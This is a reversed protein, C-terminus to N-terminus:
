ENNFQRSLGMFVFCLIALGYSGAFLSTIAGIFFIM